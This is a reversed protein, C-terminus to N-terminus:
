GYVDFSLLQGRNSVARGVTLFDKGESLFYRDSKLTVVDGLQVNRGVSSDLQFEYRETYLSSLISLRRDAEEQTSLGYQSESVKINYIQTTLDASAGTVFKIRLYASTATDWFFPLEVRQGDSPVVQAILTLGSSLVSVTINSANIGIDFSLVYNGTFLEENVLLGGGTGLYYELNAAFFLNSRLSVTTASVVTVGSTGGSGTAVDWNEPAVGINKELFKAVKLERPSVLLTEFSVSPALVHIAVGESSDASSSRYEKAYYDRLEPTLSELTEGPPLPRWLKTHKIEVRSAPIGLGKDGTPIRRLSKLKRIDTVVELVSAQGLTAPLEIRGFRFLGLLNPSMWGGISALLESCVTLCSVEDTVYYQTPCANKNHLDNLSELDYDVDAVFGCVQELIRQVIRPASSDEGYSEYVDGTVEGKPASGLKILGEARCSKYNGATVSAAVLAASNAVDAEFVIAGGKDAINWISHVAKRNGIHNYNFAYIHLSSNVVYGPVNLCRGWVMPKIRGGITDPVGELGTPGLNTGAFTMTQISYEIAELRNMVYISFEEISMEIHKMTGRFILNDDTPEETKSTLFFVEVIQGDFGHFRYADFEGDKNSLSIEGIGSSIAGTTTGTSFLSEEYNLVENLHPSYAGLIGSYSSADTVRITETAETEPNVCYIHAVYFSM